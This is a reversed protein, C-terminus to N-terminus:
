NLGQRVEANEHNPFHRPLWVWPETPSRELATGIARGAYIAALAQDGM